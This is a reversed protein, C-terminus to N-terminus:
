LISSQCRVSRMMVLNIWYCCNKWAAFYEEMECSVPGPDPPIPIAQYEKNPYLLALMERMGPTPDRAMIDGLVKHAIAMHLSWGRYNMKRQTCGPHPCKYEKVNEEESHAPPLHKHFQRREFYCECYHFQVDKIARSEDVKLASKCLVCTTLLSTDNCNSGQAIKIDDITRDNKNTVETSQEYVKRQYPHSRRVSRNSIGISNDSTKKPM